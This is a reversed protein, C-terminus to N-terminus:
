GRDLKKRLNKTRKMLKKYKHKKMKLKRQRKVSIAHWEMDERFRELYGMQRERMRELFPQKCSPIRHYAMGEQSPSRGPAEAIPTTHVKYSKQGSPLTIEDVRLTTTYSKTIRTTRSEEQAKANQIREQVAEQFPGMPVPAPPKTYPRFQKAMEKLNLHLHKAPLDLNHVSQIANSQSERTVAQRLDAEELAMEDAHQNEAATAADDLIDLTSSLTYIIDAPKTKRPERTDFITSFTATSSEPPIPNSLHLPRHQAFFSSLQMDIDHIHKTSAAKPLDPSAETPATIIPETAGEKSKRKGSRGSTRKEIGEKTLSKAEKAVRAPDESPATTLTRPDLKTSSSTKSSSHKRQHTHIPSPKPPGAILGQSPWRLGSCSLCTWTSGRALSNSCRSFM